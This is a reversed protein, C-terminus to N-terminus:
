NSKKFIMRLCANRVAHKYKRYFILYDYNNFYSFNDKVEEEYVIVQVVKEHYDYDFGIDNYKCLPVITVYDFITIAVREFM